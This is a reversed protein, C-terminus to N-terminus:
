SIRRAVVVLRGNEISYECTSLTILKEGYVPTIGTDYFALSKCQSVFSNFEEESQANDFLYYPYGVGLTGSTRFVAFVQYTHRETLTDFQIYHNKWYTSSYRYNELDGFMSGDKMMHGYLTINDSPKNIDCAERAYICGWDSYNGYYDRKLYYDPSSPTQMVPYNIQTGNISIWGVIDNNLQYLEAFEPLVQVLAGTDPDKVTVLAPKPTTSAPVTPEPVTGDGTSDQTPDQNNTESTSETTDIVIGGTFNPDRLSDLYDFQDSVRRSQIFYNVLFFASVLFVCAFVAILGNTIWRKM